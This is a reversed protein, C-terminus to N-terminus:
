QPLEMRTSSKPRRKSGIARRSGAVHQLPTRTNSAECAPRAERAPHIRSDTRQRARARKHQRDSQLGPERALPRPSPCRHHTYPYQQQQQKCASAREPGHTCAPRHIISSPLPHFFAAGGCRYAIALHVPMPMPMLRCCATPDILYCALGIVLRSHSIESVCVTAQSAPAPRAGLDGGGTTDLPTLAMAPKAHAKFSETSRM